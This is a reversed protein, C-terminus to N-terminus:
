KLFLEWIIWMPHRQRDMQSMPVRLIFSSTVGLPRLGRRPSVKSGLVRLISGKPEIKSALARLISGEPTVKPMFISTKYAIPM